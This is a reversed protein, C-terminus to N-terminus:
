LVYTILLNNKHYFLLVPLVNAIHDCITNWPTNAQVTAHQFCNLTPAEKCRVVHTQLNARHKTRRGCHPCQFQPEKGCEYTQHRRLHEIRCYARGCEKCKFSKSRGSKSYLWSQFGTVLGFAKSFNVNNSYPFSWFLDKFQLRSWIEEWRKTAAQIYYTACYIKFNAESM